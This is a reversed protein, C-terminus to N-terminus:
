RGRDRGRLLAICLRSKPNRECVHIPGEGVDKGEGVRQFDLDQTLLGGGGAGGAPRRRTLLARGVLVAVSLPSGTALTKKWGGAVPTKPRQVSRSGSLCPSPTISNLLGVIRDTSGAATMPKTCHLESYVSLSVWSGSPFPLIPHPTPIHVYLIIPM